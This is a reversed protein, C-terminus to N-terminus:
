SRELHVRMRGAVETLQHAVPVTAGAADVTEVLLKIGDMPHDVDVRVEFAAGFVITVEPARLHPELLVGLGLTSGDVLAWCTSTDSLCARTSLKSVDLQLWNCSFLQGKVVDGQKLRGVVDATTSPESRAAVQTHVVRYLGSPGPEGPDTSQVSVAM